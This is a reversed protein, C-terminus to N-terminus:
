MIETLIKTSTDLRNLFIVDLQITYILRYSHIIIVVLDCMQLNLFLRTQNLRRLRM